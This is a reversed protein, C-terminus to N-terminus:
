LMDSSVSRMEEIMLFYRGYVAGGLTRLIIAM